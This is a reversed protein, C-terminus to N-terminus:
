LLLVGSAPLRGLAAVISCRYLCLLRYGEALGQLLELAAQQGESSRVGRAMGQLGANIM